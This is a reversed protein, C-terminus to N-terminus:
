ENQMKGRGQVEGDEGRVGEEKSGGGRKREIARGV